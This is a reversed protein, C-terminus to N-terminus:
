SDTRVFHFVKQMIAKIQKPKAGLFGRCNYEGCHCTQKKSGFREFQYDFTLETGAKIDILAFIGVRIEGQVYRSM